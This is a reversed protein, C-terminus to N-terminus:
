QIVVVRRAVNFGATKLRVIYQGSTLGTVNILKRENFSPVTASYVLQGALTHVTLDVNQLDEITEVAIFGNSVPNPYVSLGESNESSVFQIENSFNSYCTLNPAGAL